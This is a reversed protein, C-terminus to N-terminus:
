ALLLFVTPRRDIEPPTLKKWEDIRRTLISEDPLTLNTALCLRTQGACHDLLAAFLKLNRYPTEIFIQTRQHARSEKEM